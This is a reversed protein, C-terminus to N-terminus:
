FLMLIVVGSCDTALQWPLLSIGGSNVFKVRSEPTVGVPNGLDPSFLRSFSKKELDPFLRFKLKLWPFKSFTTFTLSNSFKWFLENNFPNQFIIEIFQM